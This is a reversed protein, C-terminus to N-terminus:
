CAFPPIKADPRVLGWKVVQAAADRLSDTTLWGLLGAGYMAGQMTDQAGSQRGDPSKFELAYLGGWLIFYDPIGPEVGMEKFRKAERGDRKGGNPTHWSVVGPLRADRFWTVFARQIQFEDIRPM